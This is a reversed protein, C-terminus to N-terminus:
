SSTTTARRSVLRHSRCAVDLVHGVLEVQVASDLEAHLDVPQSEVLVVADPRHLGFPVRLCKWARVTTSAEPGSGSWLSGSM